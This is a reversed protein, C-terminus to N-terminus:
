TREDFASLLPAEVEDRFLEGLVQDELARLDIWHASPDSNRTASALSEITLSGDQTMPRMQGDAPTLEFLDVNGTQDRRAAIILQGTPSFAPFSYDTNDSVLRTLPDGDADTFDM